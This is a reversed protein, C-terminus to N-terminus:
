GAPRYTLLVGGTTTPKSDILDLKRVDDADRFLKKGGGLLIPYVALFYEDVLDNEALGRVLEGSGFVVLEGGVQQKLDRVAAALETDIRHSNTWDLDTITRSVVYKPMRNMAAVAPESEDAGSWASALIEFSRGGLLMAEANLTATRMFDDVAADGFPLVWGGHDFGGARDEDASMPSQIVGDISVFNVVVVRGMLVGETGSTLGRADHAALGLPLGADILDLHEAVGSRARRDAPRRRQLECRHRHHLRQDRRVPDLVGVLWRCPQRRRRQRGRPWPRVSQRRACGDGSRGRGDAPASGRRIPLCGGLPRARVALRRRVRRRGTDLGYPAPEVRLNADGFVSSELTAALDAGAVAAVVEALLVYNSNSYAFEGTTEIETVSTIAAIADAQDSAEDLGTGGEILLDTYDPIGSTHHLLDDLTVSRAWSPLAPLHRSVPDTLALEGDQALRLVAIATFQKSVSAIDFATTETIPEAREVDALGRAGTWLVDGERAVAASCGPGDTSLTELLVEDSALAKDDPTPSAVPTGGSCAAAALVLATTGLALAVARRRARSRRPAVVDTM